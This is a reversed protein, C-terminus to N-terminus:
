LKLVTAMPDDDEIEDKIEGKIEQKMQIDTSIPQPEHRATALMEYFVKEVDDESVKECRQIFSRLFRIDDYSGDIWIRGNVGITKEIVFSKGILHIIKCNDKLLRRSYSCSVSIITGSRSLLGQGRSKGVDNVCSM